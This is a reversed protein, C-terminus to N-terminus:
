IQHYTSEKQHDFIAQIHLYLRPFIHQDEPHTLGSPVGSYNVAFDSPNTAIGTYIHDLCDMAVYFCSIGTKLPKSPFIMQVNSYASAIMSFGTTFHDSLYAKSSSASDCSSLTKKIKVLQRTRKGGHPRFSPVSEFCSDM